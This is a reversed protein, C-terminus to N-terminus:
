SKRKSPFRLLTMSRSASTGWLRSSSRTGLFCNCPACTRLLGGLAMM